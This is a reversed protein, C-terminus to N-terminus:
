TGRMPRSGCAACRGCGRAVADLLDDREPDARRLVQEAVEPIPV